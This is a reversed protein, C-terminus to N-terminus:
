GSPDGHQVDVYLCNTEPCFFPSPLVKYVDGCCGYAILGSYQTFNDAGKVCQEIDLSGIEERVAHKIALQPCKEEFFKSLVDKLGEATADALGQRKKAINSNDEKAESQLPDASQMVSTSAQSKSNLTIRKSALPNEAEDSAMIPGDDEAHGFTPYKRKEAVRPSELSM